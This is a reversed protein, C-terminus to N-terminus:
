FMILYLVSLTLPISVNDNVWGELEVLAGAVSFVLATKVDVYILAAIFSSLIFSSFGEFTKGNHMRQRLFKGGITSFADGVSLVIIVACAPGTPLLLLPFLIGVGFYVAGKYPFTKLDERREFHFLIHNSVRFGPSIRPTALFVLIGGLVPFAVLWGYLPHLFFALVSIVVGGTMHVVQRKFEFWTGGDYFAKLMM